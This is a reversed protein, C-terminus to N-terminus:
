WLPISENFPNRKNSRINKRMNKPQSLDGFNGIVMHFKGVRWPLRWAGHFKGSPFTCLVKLAVRGAKFWDARTEWVDSVGPSVFTDNKDWPDNM